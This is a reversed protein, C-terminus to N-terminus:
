RINDNKNYDDSFFLLDKGSYFLSFKANYFDKLLQKVLFQLNEPQSLPLFNYIENDSTKSDPSGIN